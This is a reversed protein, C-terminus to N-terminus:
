DIGRVAPYSCRRWDSGELVSPKLEVGWRNYYGRRANPFRSSGPGPRNADFPFRILSGVMETSIILGDDIRDETFEYLLGIPFFLMLVIGFWALANLLQTTNGAAFEKIKFLRLDLLPASIRAEVWVLCFLLAMCYALMLEGPLAETMAYSLFSIALLVLTM